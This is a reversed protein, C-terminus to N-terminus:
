PEIEAHVMALLVAAHHEEHLTTLPLRIAGAILGYQQLAWKIPMPNSAIVLAKHLPMLKNNIQGAMQTNKELAATTMTAMHKPAINATVSIVGSAGHLICALASSDDGSFISFNENAIGTLEQIRSKDSVAEKIGIINPIKALKAVTGPLLDCGTRGPVNYLIIPGPVFEAITEYHTYLGHQTPRNYYPTVVLCATAGLDIAQCSLELTTKTSNTGTGAIIPIRGNAIELATALVAMKEQSNLTASEGTTGTVVIANTGSAIHLEVLAELAKLDLTANDNAQMPTVLAVISGKLM